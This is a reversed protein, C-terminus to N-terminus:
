VLFEAAEIADLLGTIYVKSPERDSNAIEVDFLSKEAGELQTIGQQRYRKEILKYYSDAVEKGLALNERLKYIQSNPLQLKGEDDKAKLVKVWQQLLQWHHLKVWEKGTAASLENESTVVYPRRYLKTRGNDVTLHQRIQTLEVGSSDYVVHFDLASCPYPSYETQNSTGDSTFVIEKVKKASKALSEALEYAVSFPFHPKIIAIGACASLRDCNLAVRAINKITEDQQTATEFERLFRETFPLALKGDCIVTLDDGGLILPFIPLIQGTETEKQQFVSIASLFARETCSDLALSFERLKNIYNRNTYNPNIQALHQHFNIFIKGLGNGDAHVVGLLNIQKINRDIKNEITETQALDSDLFQLSGAFNCHPYESKLLTEIREFGAKKAERKHQSTISIAQKQYRDITAAPLDSSACEEIVPLRLFRMAPAPIQLRNAEFKQHIKKIARKLSRM